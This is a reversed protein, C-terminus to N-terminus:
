ERCVQEYLEIAEPLRDDAVLAEAIKVQVDALRAKLSRRAAFEPQTEVMSRFLAAAQRLDGSEELRTAISLQLELLQEVFGEGTKEPGRELAAAVANRAREYDEKTIFEVVVSRFTEQDEKERLGTKSLVFADRAKEFVANTNEKLWAEWPQIASGPIT